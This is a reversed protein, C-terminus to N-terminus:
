SSQSEDIYQKLFEIHADLMSPIRCTITEDSNYVEFVSLIMTYEMLAKFGDISNIDISKEKVYKDITDKWYEIPTPHGLPRGYKDKEIM